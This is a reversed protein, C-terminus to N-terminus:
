EFFILYTIKRNFINKRAWGVEMSSVWLAIQKMQPVAIQSHLALSSCCSPWHYHYFQLVFNFTTESAHYQGVRSSLDVWAKLVNFGGMIGKFSRLVHRLLHTDNLGMALFRSNQLQQM